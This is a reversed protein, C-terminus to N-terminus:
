WFRQGTYASIQEFLALPSIGQVPQRSSLCVIPWKKYRILAGPRSTSGIVIGAVLHERDVPYPCSEQRAQEHHRTGDDKLTADLFDASFHEMTSKVQEAADEFSTHGELEIILVFYITRGKRQFSGAYVGDASRRGQRGSYVDKFYQSGPGTVDVDYAQVKTGVDPQLYFRRKYESYALKDRKYSSLHVLPM